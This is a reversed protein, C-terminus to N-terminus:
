LAERIAREEDALRRAEYEPTGVIQERPVEAVPADAEDTWREDNLWGQPYKLYRPDVGQRKAALAYAKAADIIQAPNAGAKICINWAKFAPKKGIKRPYEEWFQQFWPDKYDQRQRSTKSSLVLVRADTQKASAKADPKASAKAGCIPCYDVTHGCDWTV